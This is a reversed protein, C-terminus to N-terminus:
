NNNNYRTPTQRPRCTAQQLLKDTLANPQTPRRYVGSGWVGFGLGVKAFKKKKKKKKKKKM